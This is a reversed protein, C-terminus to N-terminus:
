ALSRTDDVNAVTSDSGKEEYEFLFSRGGSLGKFRTMVRNNGIDGIKRSLDSPRM